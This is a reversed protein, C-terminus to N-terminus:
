NSLRGNWNCNVANINCKCVCDFQQVSYSTPRNTPLHHHNIYDLRCVLGWLLNSVIVHRHRCSGWNIDESVNCRLLCSCKTSQSQSQSKPSPVTGWFQNFYIYVFPEKFCKWEKRIGNLKGFMELVIDDWIENSVCENM